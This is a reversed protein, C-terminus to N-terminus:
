PRLRPLPPRDRRPWKCRACWARRTRPLTFSLFSDLAWTASSRPWTATSTASASSCSRGSRVQQEVLRRAREVVLGLGRDPPAQGLKADRPHDDRMAQARDTV